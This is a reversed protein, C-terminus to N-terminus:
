EGREPIYEAGNLCVGAECCESVFALQRDVSRQGWFEYPGIGFDVWEGYCPELCESCYTTDAPYDPESM